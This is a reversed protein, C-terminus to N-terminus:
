VEVGSLTEKPGGLDIDAVTKGEPAIISAMYLLKVIGGNKGENEREIKSLNKASESGPVGGYSHMMLLIDKGEDALRETTEQIRLADDNLTVGSAEDKTGVSPLSITITEYGYSTLKQNLFTYISPPAFSGPVIVISPKVAM